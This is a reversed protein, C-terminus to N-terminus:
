GPRSRMKSSGGTGAHPRHEDYEVDVMRDAEEEEESEVEMNLVGQLEHSDLLTSMERIFSGVSTNTGDLKEKLGKNEHEIESIQGQLQAIKEEFGQVNAREQTGSNQKDLLQIYENNLKVDREELDKMYRQQEQFKKKNTVLDAEFEEGKHTVQEIKKITQVLDQQLENVKKLNRQRVREEQLKHTYHLKMQRFAHHLYSRNHYREVALTM